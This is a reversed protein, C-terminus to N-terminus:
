LSAHINCPTSVRALIRVCSRLSKSPMLALLVFLQVMRGCCRPEFSIYFSLSIAKTLALGILARPINPIWVRRDFRLCQRSIGQMSERLEHHILICPGAQLRQRWSRPYWLGSSIKKWVGKAVGFRRSATQILSVCVCFVVVIYSRLRLSEYLPFQGHGNPSYYEDSKQQNPAAQVSTSDPLCLHIAPRALSDTWPQERAKHEPKSYQGSGSSTLIASVPKVQV